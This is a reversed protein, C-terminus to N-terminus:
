VLHGRAGEGDGASRLKELEDVVVRVEQPRNGPRKDLCASVLSRVQAPATVSRLDPLRRGVRLRFEDVTLSDADFLSKGTTLEIFMAGLAYVDGSESPPTDPQLLEPALHSLPRAMEIRVLNYRGILWGSLTDALVSSGDVNRVWVAANSVNGHVLGQDHVGAVTRGVDLVTALARGWDYPGKSSLRQALSQGDPLSHGIVIGESSGLAARPVPARQGDPDYRELLRRGVEFDSRSKSTSGLDLHRGFMLRGTNDEVTGYDGLADVGSRRFTQPLISGTKGAM